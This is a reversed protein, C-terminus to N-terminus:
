IPLFVTVLILTYLAGSLELVIVWQVWEVKYGMQQANARAGEITAVRYKLVARALRPYFLAVGPYMWTDQPPLWLSVCLFFIYEYMRFSNEFM